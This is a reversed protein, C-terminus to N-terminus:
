EVGLSRRWIEFTYWWDLKSINNYAGSYFDKVFNKIIRHNYPSFNKFDNSDLLKLIQEKLKYYFEIRNDNRYNQFLKNKSKVYTSAVIPPLLFSIKSNGKVLPYKCLEPRFKKILRRFYRGNERWYLDMSFITDLVDKQLFPIYSILINDLRTQEVGTYNPPRTKIALLDALNGGGIDKVSPLRELLEEIHVITGRKMKEMYKDQFILGKPYEIYKFVLNPNKEKLGKYGFKLLRAFFKRRGIEGFAGDIFVKNNFYKYSFYGMKQYSSAPEIMNIESIYSHIDSIYKDDYITKKSLHKHPIHLDKIIRKAMKVDIDTEEGLTITQIPSIYNIPKAPYLISLLTRSDLGGSLGFTFIKNNFPEPNLISKLRKELEILNYSKFSPLWEETKVNLKGKNVSIRGGPEIRKIGKIISNYSLNNYSLWTSGFTEFDLSSAEEFKVIWDLRTSFTKEGKENYYYLTRLGLSDSIFNLKNGKWKVIIYHGNLKKNIKEEDNIIRKWEEKNMIKISNENLLIGLGLVAWGSEKNKHIICTEPIGGLAIFLTSKKITYMPKFDLFETFKVAKKVNRGYYGFLWGM